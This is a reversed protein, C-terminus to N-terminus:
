KSLNRLLRLAKEKMEFPVFIHDHHYASIANVPIRAKALKNTIAALFGIASLDSRVGMTILSWVGSYKLARADAVTKEVIITKGEKETFVLLPEIKLRRL